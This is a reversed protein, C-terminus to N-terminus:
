NSLWIYPLPSYLKSVVKFISQSSQLNCQMRYFHTLNDHTKAPLWLVQSLLMTCLPATQIEDRLLFQLYGDILWEKNEELRKIRYCHSVAQGLSVLLAQHVKELLMWLVSEAWESRCLWQGTGHVLRNPTHQCYGNEECCLPSTSLPM